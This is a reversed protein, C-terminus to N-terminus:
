AIVKSESRPWSRHRGDAHHVHRSAVPNATTPGRGIAPVATGVVVDNQGSLRALLVTYIAHLVMFVGHEHMLARGHIDADATFSVREGHSSRMAPRPRDFPLALVEPADAFSDRWFEIEQETLRLEAGIRATEEICKAISQATDPDLQYALWIGSQASSLPSANEPVADTAIRRNGRHAHDAATM